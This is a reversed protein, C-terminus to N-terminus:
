QKNAAKFTALTDRITKQLEPSLERYDNIIKQEENTYDTAHLPHRNTDTFENPIGVLYDVSVNFVQSLKALYTAKPENIGNEWFGIASASVGIIDALEKQTLNKETRLDLLRQQFLEM